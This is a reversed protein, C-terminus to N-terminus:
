HVLLMDFITFLLKVTSAQHVFVFRKQENMRLSLHAQTVLLFLSWQCILLKFRWHKPHISPPLSDRVENFIDKYKSILLTTHTQFSPSYIIVSNENKTSCKLHV